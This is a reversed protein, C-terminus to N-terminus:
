FLSYIIQRIKNPKNESINASKVQALTIPLRQLMQKPSLVKIGNGKQQENFDLNKEVIDVIKNPNESEPIEKRIIASRLDILGDNVSNVLQETKAQTARILYKALFSLSQYKFYKCFIEINIDKENAIIKNIFEQQMKLKSKRRKAPETAVEPTSVCTSIKDLNKIPFLRSM